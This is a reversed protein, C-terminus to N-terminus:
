ETPRKQEFLVKWKLVEWRWPSPRSVFPHKGRSEFLILLPKGMSVMYMVTVNSNDRDQRLEVWRQRWSEFLRASHMNELPASDNYRLALEHQTQVLFRARPQTATQFTLFANRSRMTCWFHLSQERQIKFRRKFINSARIKSTSTNRPINM